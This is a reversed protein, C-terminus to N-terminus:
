EKLDYPSGIVKDDCCIPNEDRKHNHGEELFTM